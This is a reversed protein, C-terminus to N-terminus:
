QLGEAQFQDAALETRWASLQEIAEDLTKVVTGGQRVCGLVFSNLGKGEGAEDNTRWDDHLAVIGKKAPDSQALAYFIGIECATGDDV